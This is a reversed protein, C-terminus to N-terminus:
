YRLERLRQYALATRVIQWVWGTAWWYNVSISFEMSRVQHWWFHPIYLLEGPELVCHLPCAGAFRPYRAFDPEEADVRSVQPMQSWPANRYLKWEQRPSYLKVRKRGVVQAFLNDPLDMHLPSRTEAASLWLKYISWPARPAFSPTRVDDRLETLTEGLLIMAYGNITPATRLQEIFDGLPEDRYPIGAAPDNIVRKGAVGAVPVRRDGFRAALHDASWLRRAPWDEMAGTIIVPRQPKVYGRYFEEATPPAIREVSDAEPKPAAAIV